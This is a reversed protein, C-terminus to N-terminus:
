YDAMLWVVVFTVFLETLIWLNSRFQSRIIKFIHRIM